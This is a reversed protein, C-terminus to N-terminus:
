ASLATDSSLRILEEDLARLRRSMREMVMFVLSPDEHIKRLFMKRDITLVRVDGLPRVTASRVDKEFLAMEGFFDGEGLEALRIEKGEQEKIVEVKGEQIVYMCEGVDGQRVMIEGARYVRGLGRLAVKDEKGWMRCNIPVLGSITEYVFRGLFFPHLARTFVDRYSASGSFTDWLVGSMRRRVGRARQERTTMRLLGRRAFRLNQILHTIAFVLKGIRNDTAIARCVPYYYRRFDGATIGHFIATKAAAKATRYSGGIGDKYLRNVGSDGILVVRDAFPMKVGEVNISPSCCCNERTVSWGPPFCRKVEPSGFFAELLADDIGKGLLCVTVYDGKPILAAFELRPINLLFIHMSSGIYTRCIEQPLFFECIFTRATKPSRYEPVLTEIGKPLSSNVGSAVVLLDYEDTTGGKTIVQPKGNGQEIREVRERIVRAGKAAALDLLYGDFSQWRRGRIGRPGAGRHVAAIRKERRPTEIRISGLDMHLMYSDIGRQVVEPPLRIGETSLLQVMTDYVIGGCMNCGAPGPRSFDRPEFIDTHLTIGVREAMVLLFYSFFSGAPGGGIVGVRSGSELSALSNM